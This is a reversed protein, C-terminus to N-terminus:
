QLKSFDFVTEINQRVFNLLLKELPNNEYLKMFSDDFAEFPYRKYQEKFDDVNYIEFDDLFDLRIDNNSIFNNFLEFMEDAGIQKLSILVYPAFSRSSNVFFQCLGGNQIELYYNLITSVVRQKDNISDISEGTVDFYLTTDLAEILASDDLKELESATLSLYYNAKQRNKNVSKITTIIDRILGFM